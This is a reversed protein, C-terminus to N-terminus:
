EIEELKERLAALGRAAAYVQDGTLTACEFEVSLKAEGRRATTTHVRVAHGTVGDNDVYVGPCVREVADVDAATLPMGPKPPLPSGPVLVYNMDMGSMIDRETRVSLGSARCAAAHSEQYGIDVEIKGEQAAERFLGPLEEALWRQVERDDANQQARGSARAQERARRGEEAARRLTHIAPNQTTKKMPSSRGPRGPQERTRAM